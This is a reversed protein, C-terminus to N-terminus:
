TRPTPSRGTPSSSSSDPTRGPRRQLIWELPPLIETGGLNAEFGPWPRAPKPSRAEDYAPERSLGRTVTSGFGSSTSTAERGFAACASSSRTGRRRSRPGGMSGSRDLLFVYEGGATQPRSARSSRCLAVHRGSPGDRPRRAARPARHPDPARLRPRPRSASARPTRTAAKGRIEVSAPALGVRHRSRRRGDRDRGCSLGYPVAFRGAPEAGRRRAAWGRHPRSGARLAPVRHDAPHLARARGRAAARGRLHDSSCRRAPRCTASAPRSCTPGSRTWSTPGHGAALADDYRRVGPRAGGGRRGRPRRRDRGRVRLGGGGRRPPLRLGGGRGEGREPLAPEGGGALRVGQGDGRDGGGGPPGVRRRSPPVPPGALPVAMTAPMAEEERRLPASVLVRARPLRGPAPLRHASSANLEVGPVLRSVFGPRGRLREAEPLRGGPEPAGRSARPASPPRSRASPSGESRRGKVRVLRELHEPGYHRGRGIGLPAPLLAAQVYYRDMRLSLVPWSSGAAEIGHGRTWLGHRSSRSVTRQRQRTPALVALRPRQVVGQSNVVSAGAPTGPSLLAPTARFFAQPPRWHGPARAGPSAGRDCNLRLDRRGSGLSVGAHRLRPAPPGPVFGRPELVLPAWWPRSRGRLASRRWGTDPNVRRPRPASPGAAM